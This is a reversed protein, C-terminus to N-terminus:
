SSTPLIRYACRRAGGLLHETREVRLDDGLVRQFLGLEERCLGQCIQAAACIPCHNEVLLWGGKPDASWEAMYGELRRLQALKEIRAEIPADADLQDSYLKLQRRSRAAILRDLAEEGLSERMVELLDVTLEAHSDPFRASAEATLEWIRAPRGVGGKRDFHRVLGEEELAALHQRVAMPTIGLRESLLASPQEGKTKLLLLVRDRARRRPDSETKM